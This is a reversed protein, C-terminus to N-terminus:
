REMRLALENEGAKLAYDAPSFGEEDRIDASANYDLLLRVINWNGTRAALLLPTYGRDDRVSDPATGKELILRCIFYQGNLVAEVLPEQELPVARFGVTLHAGMVTYGARGNGKRLFVLAARKEFPSIVSGRVEMEDGGLPSTNVEKFTGDRINKLRVNVRDSESFLEIEYLTGQSVLRNGQQPLGKNELSIGYKEILSSQEGPTAPGEFVTEDTILDVIKLIREEGNASGPTGVKEVWCFHGERSWGLIDMSLHVDGADSQAFAPTFSFVLFLAALFTQFNKGM